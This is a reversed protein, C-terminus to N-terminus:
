RRITSAEIVMLAVSVINASLAGGALSVELPTWVAPNGAVHTAYGMAAAAGLLGVDAVLSSALLLSGIHSREGFKLVTAILNIVIAGFLEYASHHAPNDMDGVFFGYNLSLALLVFFAFFVRQLNM